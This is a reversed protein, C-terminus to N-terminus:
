EYIRPKRKLHRTLYVLFSFFAIVPIIGYFLYCYAIFTNIDKFGLFDDAYVFYEKGFAFSMLKLFPLSWKGFFAIKSVTLCFAYWWWVFLLAPSRSFIMSILILYGLFTFLEYPFHFSSVHYDKGVREKYLYERRGV